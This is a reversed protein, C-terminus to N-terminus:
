RRPMMSGLSSGSNLAMTSAATGLLLFERRVRMARYLWAGALGALAGAGYLWRADIFRAEIREVLQFEREGFHRRAGRGLDRRPEDIADEPVDQDVHRAIRM